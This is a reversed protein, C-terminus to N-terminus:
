LGFLGKASKLVTKAFEEAPTHTDHATVSAQFDKRHHIVEYAVGAEDLHERLRPVIESM